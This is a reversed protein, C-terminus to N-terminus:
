TDLLFILKELVPSRIEFIRKTISNYMNQSFLTLQKFDIARDLVPDAVILFPYRHLAGLGTHSDSENERREEEEEEEGDNGNVANRNESEGSDTTLLPVTNHACQWTM